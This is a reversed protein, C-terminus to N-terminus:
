VHWLISLTPFLVHFVEYPTECHGFCQSGEMGMQSRLRAEGQACICVEDRQQQKVPWLDMQLALETLQAESSCHSDDLATDLM